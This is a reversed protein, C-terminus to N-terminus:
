RFPLLDPELYSEKAKADTFINWSYHQAILDKLHTRLRPAQAIFSPFDDAKVKGMFHAVAEVAVVTVTRHFMTGDGHTQDFVKIQDCVNNIAQQKGYKRVHIWALRLHAEHSFLKPPLSAEAFQQEFEADLLSLHTM